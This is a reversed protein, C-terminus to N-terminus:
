HCSEIKRGSKEFDADEGIEQKQVGIPLPSLVERGDTDALTIM